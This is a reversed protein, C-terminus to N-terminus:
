KIKWNASSCILTDKFKLHDILSESYYTEVEVEKYKILKINEITWITGYNGLEKDIFFIQGQPRISYKKSKVILGCSELEKNLSDIISKKVEKFRWWPELSSVFITIKKNPERNYHKLHGKLTEYIIRDKEVQMYALMYIPLAVLLLGFIIYAYRISKNKIHRWIPIVCHRWILDILYASLIFVIFLIGNEDLISHKLYYVTQEFSDNLEKIATFSIIIFVVTAWLLTIILFRKFEEKKWNNMKSM